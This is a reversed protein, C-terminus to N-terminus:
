DNSRTYIVAAILATLPICCILGISGALSRVIESVVLDMNLVRLLPMKDARFLMLLPLSTGAYALILTNVMTGMVDKGVNLGARYLERTELHPAQQKIEHMSSAISMGIDMVAGLAGIIIGSLLLGRFNYAIQQPAYTLMQAEDMSLGTLKAAQSFFMALLGSLIIGGATGLIATISKKNIGGVIFFTCIVAVIAVIVSVFVPNVGKLTFPVFVFWVLCVTLILTLLSRVGKWGGILIVLFAFLAVLIYVMTLRHYDDLYAVSIKDGDFELLLIIKDGKKLTIDIAPNGSFTNEITYQQGKYKGHTIKVLVEQIGKIDFTPQVEINKVSLVVARARNEEYNEWMDEEANAINTFLTFALIFVTTLVIIKNFRKIM